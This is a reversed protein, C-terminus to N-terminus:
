FSNAINMKRTFERKAHADAVTSLRGLLTLGNIIEDNDYKVGYEVLADRIETNVQPEM